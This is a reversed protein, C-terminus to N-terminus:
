REDDHHRAQQEEEKRLAVEDLADHHAAEFPSAFPPPGSLPPPACQQEVETTTELESSQRSGALSPFIIARCRAIRADQTKSVSSDVQTSLGTALAACGRADTVSVM